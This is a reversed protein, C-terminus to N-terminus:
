KLEVVLRWIEPAKALTLEESLDALAPLASSQKVELHTELTSRIDWHSDYNQGRTAAGTKLLLIEHLERCFADMDTLALFAKVEKREAESLEKKYEPPLREFPDQGRMAMLESKWCTLLQWTSVCHELRSEGLAKAVARPIQQEMRLTDRMYVLLQVQPDGGMKALFRLAVEALLVADCTDSFSHLVDRVAGSVSSKLPKQPIKSRVEALLTSFDLQHRRVYKSTEAQILPKGTVFRRALESEIAPLNYSSVTEKGKRLTYQCHTLLLPLLEQETHCLVLQAESVGELPVSYDSDQQQHMERAKRVLSNHTESLFSLLRTLCSGPGSQSLSLFEGPSDMTLETGCLREAVGMESSRSLEMRLKNWVDIFIKVRTRLVESQHGKPIQQLVQGISQSPGAETVMTVLRLLDLQLAALAPLHCLQSICPVKKIFLSLLPVTTQGKNQDLIQSFREVTLMEPVNWFSSHDTPCGSPLFRAPDAYLLIMLPSGRLSDDASIRAQAQKLKEDLGQLVPGIVSDCALKEWKERRQRSSLDAGQQRSVEAFELFAHLVLHMVVMTQDMNQDLSQGLVKMDKELHRWLFHQVDIVPPQIMQSIAQQDRVTGLMMALHTCFRLIYFAATSLQREPAESRHHADGLIHGTRTHDAVSHTETFGAVAIHHIGGIRVKCELCYSEQVPRGCEGVFCVHGNACTYTRLNGGGTMWQRAESSRDDPMTPLYAGTMTRPQFAIQCLPAVLLGGTLFVAAAHVLVELLARRQAPMSPTVRLLSGVGGVKNDLLGTCLDQHKGSMHNNLFNSLTKIGEATPLLRRDTDELRCTVERFFVLSLLVDTVARPCALRQLHTSLTNAELELLTHCVQDRLVRYPEGCCLFRDVKVPTQRQLRLVESPFVWRRNPTNMLVQVCDVGALRHVARLLYVRHWDNGGHELTARVRGLFREGLESPAEAAQLLHAATGLYARLRAVALLFEAPQDRINPMHGSALQSLFQIGEQLHRQEEAMGGGSYLSDQFCNVFLLYLETQDERELIHDQLTRLYGQIHDKVQQFSYQLLLKPLVSRVVPNQDVSDLFPTLERTRYASDQKSFLLSFLLEVVGKHPDGGGYLCFRSVVELFFANCHKRLARHQKLSSRLGQSVTLQFSDPVLARCMPCSLNNQISQQLCSLCFTHGCALAVPEELEGMCVPCKTGYRFDLQGTEEYCSTLIGIVKTLTGKDRLDSSQQMLVHLHRCTKLTLNKFRHENVRLVVQQIFAAVVLVGRWAGRINELQQLCGPSCLASFNLGFASEVCPQLLQVRHLLTKHDDMNVQQVEEVCVGLALIDECMEPPDKPREQLLTHVLYPQLRLLQLLTDLRPAYIRVAAQIWAPSLEPNVELHRQLEGICAQSAQTLVMLHEESSIRFHMLLFDQLYRQGFHVAQPGSLRATHGGLRSGAFASAFRLVRQRDDAQTVPLFESEEWLRQCQMRILWSFPAACPRLEGALLVHCQVPIEKDVPSSNKPTVLELTQQDELIDLWLCVLGEDVEPHYLLDLNADRDLVELVLALVPTLMNQLCRWLTHRLTGGEQLALRKRAEKSVWERPSLVKEEQQALLVALKRILVELFRAGPQAASDDLLSLLIEVRKMSRSAQLGPDKLLCVARQICSRLLSPGHLQARPAQEQSGNSDGERDRPEEASHSCCRSLGPEVEWSCVRPVRPSSPLVSSDPLALLESFPTGCFASLDASMDETDRLDDIHMSLWVGGQFGTYLSKCPMRSLKTIFIVHCCCQAPGLSSLENMTCYKASAILENSYTSEEMDTQILLIRTSPAGDQIFCRIKSSFSAETDFQHLSLLLLKCSSIAQIDSRTLLSSFTTVETFRSSKESSNLQSKLFARLSVHRQERFYMEKLSKEEWSGLKSYKLRLVAEPTACNLLICKAAEFVQEEEREASLDEKNEETKMLGEPGRATVFGAPEAEALADDAYEMSIDSSAGAASLPGEAEAVDPGDRGALERSEADTVMSRSDSEAGQVAPESIEMKKMTDENIEVQRDEAGRRGGRSELAQLLATACADDHFGAFADSVKFAAEEESLSTFRDVWEQLKSLVRRQHETLDASRDLRHKEMRNILPVPFQKYVKDQDEVVVLRFERHVRCKVRHTGLGLDVYQQGGLYVYYQNLADYLSEYLNQLNLLIVTRGTEMCTKVRNVNRCISAYEQDKPFGSGFVIEPASDAKAFVRQQLIPLAANNTTLLLLYRSEEKKCSDLNREVMQLTSPRPIERLNQFLEQFYRLPDFGEPQGSFNRLIAEALECDSPEQQFEKVVAFIMKVLSYFDRLGFFQSKDTIKCIELFAKALQPFLHQIKFLVSQDSSCIGKATEVLENESPDWRSVFIGRNMKAPDLAWNSIGVFGVKMHPDPTDNDICGDELLPHLTKLPMQPSDEALGIEDLVVVSVYKDPNKDQQFRACQRFTSIIGEPSSHPSCQFSVMHVAKLARFLRCQSNQGQMADAVVTKALSKSSGPKGVLFLPIRLEICVVMLFVNEKLAINKAITERTQVNRLFLEQCKHIEQEILRPSNLPEPFHRSIARIYPKKSVLMPYYCVGVALALCKLTRDALGRGLEPFMQDYHTYFWLLVRMSREVDRLSVFSCEDKCSRMYKQSEALVESIVNHCQTPLNHSRAKQHVIQRIYSLETSDSLQGFDWVLPIMSPPLPQVRYVLQRLPVKGLRDETEEAKVRYGLGARELREVMKASHRRYPNCAAIIKLGSDMKLPHGQVTKDCLVEKIAFISETTNAEDFFLVTDLGFERRNREALREAERVKRQITEATTGGHVKILKMNETNKGERQLDCLFRVLRTKGCGTEGMIIVPIGCRFRMHIALMKMVNDATLEYTPDPDFQQVTWGKEAGVVFSIRQIKDKRALNDFNENFSIGQRQLGELLHPTMVDGMIVKNDQPHVANLTRGFPCKQIRFGLFSMSIHDANFFIYPHPETEWRKRITLRALMDDENMNEPLFSPSQDSCNMSPTAFDRAMTIMFKIIFGKFGKLHDALFDPDCFMSYECDKLQLNLFWTFNKLEAWSPDTMGCNVLLHHLCDITDGEVSDAIYKFPDLNEGRNYRKLYQYPRQVGESRFEQEDMLPDLTKRAKKQHINLQLEKVEKPSRCHIAPLIDLLGHVDQENRTQLQQTPHSRLLEVTILHDTSRRWLNGESDSVCGLVLLQFLFEELGFRVAAADIHLMAVDQESLQRTWTHLTNLFSDPQVRPELLRLRLLRAKPFARQFSGFLRDVCLSKGVSPRTSSILWVSINEPYVHSHRAASSFHQRLYDRAKNSSIGFGAQVKYGSFFSPVYKCQDNVGCVIVLRYHPEAGRELLEFHEGLSVSVDYALLGANILTFIKGQDDPACRGLARRLFLEVQEATTDEQCLLVEDCSPLPEEASHMYISLATSLVDAKPCLVLNPRGRQLVAPMERRIHERNMESLRSLFLALTFIDLNEGLYRPMDSKFCRWLKEMSQTADQKTDGDVLVMFDSADDEMALEENSSGSLDRNIHEESGSNIVLQPDSRGTPILSTQQSGARPTKSETTLAFAAQVDELTCDTKVSRLLHWTMQPLRAFKRCTAFIWHSLHVVQEATYYNLCPYKSRTKGILDRWDRHCFEMCRCLYQLQETVEGQYEFVKGSLPFRVRICERSQPSCFVLAKWHHFLMNGSSHLQLLVTGLRQVGDFVEMFRSVQERGYDGKSSMLMLKNQLEQLEVVSYSRASNGKKVMVTLLNEMTRKGTQNEPWGVHYVGETNIASALSLSSQEVSGHTERLGKLWDLWHASDRLKQPLKTDRELAEWVPQVCDMFEKFGATSPLSYILSGYGTVADHFCAVRDIESDNEGASISALDVFVKLDSMRELNDKVWCILTQHNLFEQLCATRHQTLTVLQKEAQILDDSLSVLEKGRFSEERLQMLSRIPTFDGSLQLQEAIGLVASASEAAQCLRQYQEIQCSRPETWDASVGPQRQLMKAMLGLEKRMERGEGRDGVWQLARELEDFTVTGSAVKQALKRYGALQPRWVTAQVQALTLSNAAMSSGHAQSAIGEAGRVWLSLLLNSNRMEHMETAMGLVEQDVTYWHVPRQATECGGGDSGYPQVRVLQSLSVPLLNAKHQHELASIEPVTIVDAIKKIMKILTDMYERHQNFINVDEERQSLLKKIDGQVKRNSSKKYEQYLREFQKQHKLTTLLHGFSIHGGHLADVLTALVSGGDQLVQRADQSLKVRQWCSQSLFHHLASQPQLVQEVLDGKFRERSQMLIRSLIWSPMAKTRTSLTMMLDGEKGEQCINEIASQSLEQLCAIITSHAGSQNLCCFLVRDEPSAQSIRSRLDRELMSSWRESIQQVSCQVKLLSDWLELEKPYCLAGTNTVPPKSLLGDRWQCLEAQSGELSNLLCARERDEEDGAKDLQAHQMEALTLLLQYSMVATTYFPVLRAMRCVSRLIRICCQFLPKAYGCGLIRSEADDKLAKLIHSIIHEAAQLNVGTLTDTSSNRDYEALRFMLTQILHEVATRTAVSFEVVDETAVLSLWSTQLLPWSETWSIHEKIIKLVIRRKDPNLLVQERFQAYAVGPLAAWSQEEATPDPRKADLQDLSGTIMHLLPVLLLLEAVRSKMCRNMLAVLAHNADRFVAKAETLHQSCQSMDSTMMTCLEAWGKVGLDLSCANSVLCVALGTVLPNKESSNRLSLRKAEERMVQLLREAIMESVQVSPPASDDPYIMRRHIQQYGEQYHKLTGVFREITEQELKPPWKEFICDLLIRASSFWREKNVAVKKLSNLGPIFGLLGWEEHTIHGEYLHLEKIQPNYPIIMSRRGTEIIQKGQKRVCYAYQVLQGRPLNKEEVLFRAETLYGQQGKESFHLIELVEEGNGHLLLLKDANQNFKFKKDLVAYINFTFVTPRTPSHERSGRTDVEQQRKMEEPQEKSKGGRDSSRERSRTSQQPNKGEGVKDSASQAQLGQHVQSNDQSNGSGQDPHEALKHQDSHANGPDKQGQDSAPSQSTTVATCQDSLQDQQTTNTPDTQTQQTCLEVTRTQTEQDKKTVWGAQQQEETQMGTTKLGRTDPKQRGNGDNRPQGDMRKKKASKTSPTETEKLIRKSSIVSEDEAEQEKKKKKKARKNRKKPARGQGEDRPLKQNEPAGPRNELVEEPKRISEQKVQSRGDDMASLHQQMGQKESADAGDPDTEMM